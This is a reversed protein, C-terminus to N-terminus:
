TPERAAGMATVEDDRGGKLAREVVRERLEERHHSLLSDFRDDVDGLRLLDLHVARQAVPRVDVSSDQPQRVSHADLSDRHTGQIKCHLLGEREKLGDVVRPDAAFDDDKQVVAVILIRLRVHELDVAVGGPGVEADGLLRHGQQAKEVVDSVFAPYTGRDEKIM